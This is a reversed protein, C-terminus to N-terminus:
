KKHRRSKRQEFNYKQDFDNEFKMDEEFLFFATDYDYNAEELYFQSEALFSKQFPYKVLLNANLKDVM